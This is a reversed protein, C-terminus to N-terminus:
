LTVVKKERGLTNTLEDHKGGMKEEKLRLNLIHALVLMTPTQHHTELYQQQETPRDGGLGQNLRLARRPEEATKQCTCLIWGGSIVTGVINGILRNCENRGKWGVEVEKWSLISM